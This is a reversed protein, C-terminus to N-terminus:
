VATAIEGDVNEFANFLCEGLGVIFVGSDDQLTAPPEASLGGVVDIDNEGVCMVIPGPDRLLACIGVLSDVGEGDVGEVSRIM